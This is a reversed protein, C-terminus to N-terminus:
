ETACWSKVAKEWAEEYKDLAVDCIVSGGSTAAADGEAEVRDVLEAEVVVRVREGPFRISADVHAALDEGEVPDSQCSGHHSATRRRVAVVPEQVHQEFGLRLPGAVGIRDTRQLSDRLFSIDLNPGRVLRTSGPEAEVTPGQTEESM